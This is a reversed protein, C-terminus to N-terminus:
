LAEKNLKYSFKPPVIEVRVGDPEEGTKTVVSRLAKRDVEVKEPVIRRFREDALLSDQDLIEIKVPQQRVSLTGAVLRQSPKGMGRAWEELQVLFYARKRALIANERDLWADIRHKQEEASEENRQIEADFRGVAALYRDADAMTMQHSRDGIQLYEEVARTHECSGDPSVQAIFCECSLQNELSVVETAEGTVQDVVLYSDDLNLVVPALEAIPHIIEAM